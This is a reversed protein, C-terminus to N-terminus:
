SLLIMQTNWHIVGMRKLDNPGTMLKDKVLSCLLPLLISGQPFSNTVSEVLIKAALKATINRSGQM